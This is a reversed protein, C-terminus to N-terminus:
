LDLQHTGQPVKCTKVSTGNGMNLETIDHRFPISTITSAIVLYHLVPVDATEGPVSTRGRRSMTVTGFLAM